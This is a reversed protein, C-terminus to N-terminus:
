TPISVFGEGDNVNGLSGRTLDEVSGLVRVAPPEYAEQEVGPSGVTRIDQDTLGPRTERDM